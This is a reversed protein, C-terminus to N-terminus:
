CFPKYQTSDNPIYMYKDDMTEDRYVGAIGEDNIRTKINM